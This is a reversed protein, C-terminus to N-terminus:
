VKIQAKVNNFVENDVAVGEAADPRSFYIGFGKNEYITNDYVKATIEKSNLSIGDWQNRFIENNDIMVRGTTKIYLGNYSNQCIQCQRIIMDSDGVTNVGDWGNNSIINNEFLGSSTGKLWIGHLKCNSIHCNNLTVQCDQVAEVGCGSLSSVEIHELIINGQKVMVACNEKEGIQAVVFNSIKCAAPAEFVLPTSKCQIIVEGIGELIVAKNITVQENYTGSKVIIRDMNNAAVVAEQITKYQDNGSPSKDSKANANVEITNRGFFLAAKRLVIAWEVADQEHSAYLYWTREPTYIQLVNEKDVLTRAEKPTLHRIMHGALKIRGKPESDRPDKFYYLFTGKLICFRVKWSKYSGGQKILYGSKTYAYNVTTKSVEKLEEIWCECEDESQASLYLTSNSEIKFSFPRRTQSYAKTVMKGVVNVKGLVEKSDDSEFYYLYTNSLVFYEYKWIFTKNDNPIRRYLWGKVLANNSAWSNTADAVADHLISEWIQLDEDLFKIRLYEKTQFEPKTLNLLSVGFDISVNNGKSGIQSKKRLLGPRPTMSAMSEDEKVVIRSIEIIYDSDSANEESKGAKEDLYKKVIAGKLDFEKEPKTTETNEFVYVAGKYIACYKEDWHDEKEKMSVLVYGQLKSKTFVDKTLCSNVTAQLHNIWDKCAEEDDCVCYLTRERTVIKFAFEKGTEIDAREIDRAKEMRVKGLPLSKEEDPFYYVNREVVVFFRRKWSKYSGGRKTMWGFKSGRLKVDCAMMTEKVNPTGYMFSVISEVGSDLTEIARLAADEDLEDDNEDFPTEQNEGETPTSPENEKELVRNKKLGFKQLLVNKSVM